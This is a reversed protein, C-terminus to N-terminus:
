EDIFVGSSSLMGCCKLISKQMWVFVFLRRCSSGYLCFIVACQVLKYLGFSSYIRCAAAIGTILLRWVIKYSFLSRTKPFVLVVYYTQANKTCIKFWASQWLRIKISVCSHIRVRFFPNWLFIVVDDSVVVAAASTFHLLFCLCFGCVWRDKHICLM